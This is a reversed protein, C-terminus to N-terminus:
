RHCMLRTCWIPWMISCAQRTSNSVLTYAGAGHDRQWRVTTYASWALRLRPWLRTLAGAAVAPLALWGWVLTQWSYHQWTETIALGVAVSAAASPLVGYQPATM